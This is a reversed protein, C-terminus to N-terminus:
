RLLLSVCKSWCLKLALPLDIINTFREGAAEEKPSLTHEKLNASFTLWVWSPRGVFVTFLTLDRSSSVEEVEEEVVVVVFGEEVEVLLVREEVNLREAEVVALLPVLLFAFFYYQQTNKNQNKQPATYM